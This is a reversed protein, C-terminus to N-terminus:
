QHGHAIFFIAYAEGTIVNRVELNKNELFLGGTITVAASNLLAVPIEGQVFRLVVFPLLFLSIAGSIVLIISEETTRSASLM